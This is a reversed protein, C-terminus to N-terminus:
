QSLNAANNIQELLWMYDPQHHVFDRGSVDIVLVNLGTTHQIYKLYGKNIDELYDATIDQEYSRGRKKIQELLTASNQYLYVYLGPRPIESYMIDFLKHYLKYEDETLTVKSFILSKFIHYDAVVFDSALNFQALDETIQQYRDALFSMELQFAYREPEAYFKPLFPNDAFRELVIRANFDESIKGALSTKGAGINGEIAIYKFKEPNLNALPAPLQMLFDCPSNDEATDILANVDQKIVPHMWHPAVDRLPLLVFNRLQMRPHPVQLHPENIVDNNFAILDVDITRSIHQGDASRVRGGQQEAQQLGELLEHATKNTHVLIACNYFADGVFGMAPNEYIGSVKVVTAVHSHIFNISDQLNQLRNGLNSGLSLIATNQFKM